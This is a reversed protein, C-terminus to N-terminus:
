QGVEMKLWLRLAATAPNRDQERFRPDNGTIWGTYGVQFTGKTNRADYLVLFRELPREIRTPLAELIEALTPAPCNDKSGSAASYNRIIVCPAFAEKAAAGSPVYWEFVSDAFKGEPIQQCLELPPVIKKLSENVM